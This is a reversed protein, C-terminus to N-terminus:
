VYPSGRLPAIQRELEVINKKTKKESLFLFIVPSVVRALLPAIQWGVEVRGASVARARLLYVFRASRLM